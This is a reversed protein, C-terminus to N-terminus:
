FNNQWIKWSEEAQIHLMSEGNLIMAGHLKAKELFLTETPNYILDVCLHNSTLYQYPFSLADKINPYMGVPTTNVICHFYSIVNANIENYFFTNLNHKVTQSTVFFYDIGLNKFVHAVAKSAGGTGMILARQHNSALFPQISKAFGIVDTNYGILNGDIHHICNVAGVKKAELSLSSLYPIISEKYPITVNFGKYFSKNLHEFEDISNIAILNYNYSLGLNTFKKEFYNKSFSHKLEKGILGFQLQM